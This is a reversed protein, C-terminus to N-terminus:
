SSGSIPIVTSPGAREPRPAAAARVSKRRRAGPRTAGRRAKAVRALRARLEKAFGAVMKRHRGGAFDRERLALPAVPEKRAGESMQALAREGKWGGHTLFFALRPLRQRQLWLYTRVPTSVSANWVPTGVVVLDYDKPDREPLAIESSAGLVTEISCRLYGIAGRRETPDSIEELDAEIARAIGRAVARTRGSRSYHVVLIRPASMTSVEGKGIAMLASARPRARSFM